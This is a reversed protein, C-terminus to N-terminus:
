SLPCKTSDLCENNMSSLEKQCVLQQFINQQDQFLTAYNINEQDTYSKPACNRKKPAKERKPAKASRLAHSVKERAFDDGVDYFQNTDTNLKLFRGCSRIMKVIEYIICTKDDRAISTQYRERNMQIIVRFRRNGIHNYSVKARGCLIDFREPVITNKDDTHNIKELAVPDEGSFSAMFVRKMHEPTIRYISNREKNTINHEQFSASIVKELVEENNIEISPTRDFSPAFDSSQTQTRRM